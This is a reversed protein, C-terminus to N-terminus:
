RTGKPPPRTSRELLPVAVAYQGPIGDDFTLSVAAKKNNFWPAITYDLETQKQAFSSLSLCAFFFVLLLYKKM